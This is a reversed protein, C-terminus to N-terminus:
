YIKQIRDGLMRRQGVQRVRRVSSELTQHMGVIGLLTQSLVRPRSSLADTVHATIHPQYDIFRDLFTISGSLVTRSVGQIVQGTRISTASSEITAFSRGHADRLAMYALAAQRMGADVAEQDYQEGDICVKAIHGRLSLEMHPQEVKLGYDAAAPTECAVAMQEPSVEPIYPGDISRRGM